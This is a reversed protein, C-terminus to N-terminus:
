EVHPAPPLWERGPEARRPQSGAAWGRRVRQQHAGPERGTGRCTRSRQHDAAEGSPNGRRWSRSGHSAWGRRRQLAAPAAERTLEEVTRRQQRCGSPNQQWATRSRLRARRSASSISTAARTWNMKLHPATSLSWEGGAPEQASASLKRLEGM